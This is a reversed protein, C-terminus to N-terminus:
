QVVDLDGLTTKFRQTRAIYRFLPTLLKEDNLLKAAILTHRGGEAVMARRAEAYAPCTMLYHHVTEEAGECGACMPSEERKIRYLHARLPVHGSRLQFLLSAKKRPLGEVLKMFGKSPLAKDIKAMREYRPSEKWMASARRVLEEKAARWMAAKGRPLAKRLPAPLDTRDSSGEEVAKKALEDAEENGKVGEHGPVWRITVDMGPHRKKAASWREHFMDWVYQAPAANASASRLIAAVNDAAISARRVKHEKRLLELGLVLGVGEAEFVTHDKESGL